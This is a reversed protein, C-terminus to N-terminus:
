RGGDDTEQPPEGPAGRENLSVQRIELMPIDADGFLLVRQGLGRAPSGEGGIWDTRRGLRLSADESAHSGHYLVPLFVEGEPGGRVSVTANRWLLDVAHTPARFEMREVHEMALWYYHGNGTLVEFFSATLDDADRADDFPKGNCTGSLAPRLSEAEELKRAAELVKDDRLAISAELHLRLRAPPEVFFEPLRGQAFCEQRAMEARILQRMLVVGVGASPSQAGLADLQKDARGYEGCFCLLEALFARSPADTPNRKVAETASTVAADLDGAQFLAKTDM